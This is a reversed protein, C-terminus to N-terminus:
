RDIHGDRGDGGLDIQGLERRVRLDDQWPQRRNSLLTAGVVTQGNENHLLLIRLREIEGGDLGLLRGAVVLEEASQLGPVVQLGNSRVQETGFPIRCHCLDHLLVSVGLHVHLEAALPDLRQRVLPSVWRGEPLHNGAINEKGTIRDNAKYRYQVISSYSYACIDWM